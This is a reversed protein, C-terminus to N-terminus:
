KSQMFTLCLLADDICVVFPQSVEAVPYSHVKIQHMSDQNSNGDFRAKGM